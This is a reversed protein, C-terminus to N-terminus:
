RGNKGEEKKGWFLLKMNDWGDEIEEGQGDQTEERAQL